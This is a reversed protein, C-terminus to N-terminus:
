GPRPPPQQPVFPQPYPQPAQAQAPGWQPPPQLLSPPAPQLQLPAQQQPMSVFYLGAPPAASADPAGAFSPAPAAVSCALPVSQQLLQPYPCAQQQAQQFQAQAQLQLQPQLQLMQPAFYDQQAHSLPGSAYQAGALLQPPLPPQLQHFTGGISHGLQLGAMGAMLAGAGAGAGAAAAAQWAAVGSDSGRRDFGRGAAGGSSRLLAGGYTWSESRLGGRASGASASSSVSVRSLPAADRPGGPTVPASSAAESAPVSVAAAASAARPPPPPPPTLQYALASQSSREISVPAGKLPAGSMALAVRLDSEAELVVLAEGTFYGSENLQYYVSKSGGCARAPHLWAALEAPRVGAPVGFLRAVPRAEVAAAASPGASGGGASPGAGAGSGSSRRRSPDPDTQGAAAADVETPLANFIEVYRHGMYAKNLAGFAHEAQAETACVVFANGTCKGNRRCIVVQEAVAAPSLFVGIQDETVTFPLGRLRLCRRERADHPPPPPPPPPDGPM